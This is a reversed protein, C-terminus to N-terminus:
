VTEVAERKLADMVLRKQDPGAMMVLDVLHHGHSPPRGMRATPPLTVGDCEVTLAKRYCRRCLGRCYVGLATCWSCAVPAVSATTLDHATNQATPDSPDSASSPDGNTGQATGAHASASVLVATDPPPDVPSPPADLPM